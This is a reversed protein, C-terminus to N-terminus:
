ATPGGQGAGATTCNCLLVRFLDLAEETLKALGLRDWQQGRASDPVANECVHKRWSVGACPSVCPTWTNCQHSSESNNGLDRHEIRWLDLFEKEKFIMKLKMLLSQTQLFLQLFLKQDVSLESHSDLWAPGRSHLKM